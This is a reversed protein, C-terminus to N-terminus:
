VNNFVRESDTREISERSIARERISSLVTAAREITAVTKRRKWCVSKGEGEGFKITLDRNNTVYQRYYRQTAMKACSIPKSFIFLFLFGRPRNNAQYSWKSSDHQLYKYM